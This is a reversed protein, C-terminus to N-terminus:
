FGRYIPESSPAGAPRYLHDGWRLTVPVTAASRIVHRGRALKVVTGPAVASRDIVVPAAAEITYVGPVAISTASGQPGADVRKGAIWIRGWHQIYNERLVAEDRPFLRLPEPVDSRMGVAQELAPGNVLLLPVTDVALLQDFVPRGRRYGAMGWTSM